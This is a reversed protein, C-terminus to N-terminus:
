RRGPQLRPGLRRDVTGRRWGRWPAPSYTGTLNLPGDRGRFQTSAVPGLRDSAPKGPRRNPAWAVISVVDRLAPRAPHHDARTWSPDAQPEEMFGFAQRLRGAIDEPVVPEADPTRPHHRLRHGVVPVQPPQSRRLRGNRNEPVVPQPAPALTDLPDLPDLPLHYGGVTVHSPRVGRLRDNVAEAIHTAVTRGFRGLWAQPLPDSNVITGIATDDALYAGM